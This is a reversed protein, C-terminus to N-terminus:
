SIFVPKPVTDAAREDLYYRGPMPERIVGQHLLELFVAEEMKSRAHYRQATEPSLAGANRLQQIIRQAAEASAPLRAVLARVRDTWVQAVSRITRTTFLMLHEM